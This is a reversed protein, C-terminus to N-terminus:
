RRAWVGPAGQHPRAPARGQQWGGHGCDGPGDLRVPPWGTGGRDPGSVGSGNAGGAGDRDHCAPRRAALAVPRLVAGPGSRVGARLCGRPRGLEGAPVPTGALLAATGRRVGCDRDPGPAHRVAADGQPVRRDTVDRPEARHVAAATHGAGAAGGRSRAAARAAGRARRRGGGAGQLCLRGHVGHPRGVLQGAPLGRLRREGVLQPPDRPRPLDAPHLAVAPRGCGSVHPDADRFRHSAPQVGRQVRHVPVARDM